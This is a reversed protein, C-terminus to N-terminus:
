AVDRGTRGPLCVLRYANVLHMLGHRAAPSLEGPLARLLAEVENLQMRMEYVLKELYLTPHSEAPAFPRPVQPWEVERARAETERAIAGAIGGGGGIGFSQSSQPDKMEM